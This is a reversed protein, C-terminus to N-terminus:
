KVLKEYGVPTKKPPSHNACLGNMGDPGGWNRVSNLMEGLRVSIFSTGDYQSSGM